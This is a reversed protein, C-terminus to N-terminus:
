SLMRMATRAVSIALDIAEDEAVHMGGVTILLHYPGKFLVLQKMETDWTNMVDLRDIPHPEYNDGQIERIDRIYQEYAKESDTDAGHLKVMIGAKRSNETCTYNCVSMWDHPDDWHLNRVGCIWRISEGHFRDRIMCDM